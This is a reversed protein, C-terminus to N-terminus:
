QCGTEDASEVTISLPGQADDREHDARQALLLRSAREETPPAVVVGTLHRIAEQGAGGGAGPDADSIQM